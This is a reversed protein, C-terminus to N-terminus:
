KLSPLIRRARFTQRASQGTDPVFLLQVLRSTKARLHCRSRM